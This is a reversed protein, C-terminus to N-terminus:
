IREVGSSKIIKGIARIADTIIKETIDMMSRYDGYAQYLEMM